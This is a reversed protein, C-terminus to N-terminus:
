HGLYLHQKAGHETLSDYAIQNNKMEQLNATGLAKMRAKITSCEHKKVRKFEKDLKKAGDLAIQGHILEHQELKKLHKKWWKLTKTDPRKSLKPYKYTITLRVTIKTITCQGGRQSWLLDYKVDSHTHGQFTTGNQKIPSQETLNNIIENQTTGDIMYYETKTTSIVDAWSSSAFLLFCTLGLTFRVTHKWFYQSANM